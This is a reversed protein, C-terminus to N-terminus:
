MLEYSLRLKMHAFLCIITDLFVLVRKGYYRFLWECMKRISIAAIRDPMTDKVKHYFARDEDSFVPNDLLWRYENYLDAILQNISEKLAICDPQKAEAFSLFIVPWKGQQARMDPDEWVKLGEFLDGRNEFKYSFFSNLMSMNLTKGFRRPRTILTVADRGKWWELIFETKDIYFDGHIRMDEFTQNGTSIERKM